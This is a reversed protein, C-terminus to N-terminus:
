FYITLSVTCAFVSLDTLGDVKYRKKKRKRVSSCLIRNHSAWFAKM